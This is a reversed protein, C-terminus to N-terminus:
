LGLESLAANLSSWGGDVLVVAIGARRAAEVGLEADEFVVAQGAEVEARRLVELYSAPDPKGASVDEGTVIPDFVGALGVTELSRETARRSGSTCLAVRYRSRTRSVFDAAGEIPEASDMLALARRRKEQTLEDVLEASSAVGAGALLKEVADETKMGAITSYDVPVNLPAFTEEFARAHIPTTDILTGDLDFILLAKGTLLKALPSV